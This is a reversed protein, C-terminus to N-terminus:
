TPPVILEGDGTILDQYVLRDRGLKAGFVLTRLKERSKLLNFVNLEGDETILDQYIALDM